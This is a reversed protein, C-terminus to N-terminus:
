GQRDELAEKSRGLGGQSRRPIWPAQLMPLGVFHPLNADGGFPGGLCPVLTYWPPIDAQFCLEWLSPHLRNEWDTNPNCAKAIWAGCGFTIFWTSHTGKQDKSTSQRHDILYIFLSTSIVMEHITLWVLSLHYVHLESCCICGLSCEPFRSKKRPWIRSHKSCSISLRLWVLCVLCLSVWLM